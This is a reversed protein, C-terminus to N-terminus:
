PQFPGSSTVIVYKKIRYDWACYAVWYQPGQTGRAPTGTVYPSNQNTAYQWQWTLYDNPDTPVKDYLAIYDWRGIAEDNRWNLAIYGGSNNLWVSIAPGSLASLVKAHERPEKM